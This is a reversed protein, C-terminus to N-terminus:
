AMAGTSKKKDGMLIDVFSGRISDGLSERQGGRSDGLNVEALEDTLHLEKLNRDKRMMETRQAALLQRRRFVIFSCAGAIILISAMIVLVNGMEMTEEAVIFSTEESGAEENMVFFLEEAPATGVLYQCHRGEFEEPCKCGPHAEGKEVMNRCIGDNTCFAHESTHTGRECVDDVPNECQEIVFPSGDQIQTCDCEFAQDSGQKSSLGRVCKAGNYCTTYGDPCLEYPFSFDAGTFGTNCECYVNRSGSVCKGNPECNGPCGAEIVRCSILYLFGAIIYKLCIM